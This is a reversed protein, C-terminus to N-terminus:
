GDERSKTDSLLANLSFRRNIADWLVSPFVGNAVGRLVESAVGAALNRRFAEVDREDELLPSVGTEFLAVAEVMNLGLFTSSALSVLECAVPGFSLDATAGYLKYAWLSIDGCWAGDATAWPWYREQM